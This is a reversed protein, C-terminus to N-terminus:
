AARWRVEVHLGGLASRSLSLTGGFARTLEDAIALGLGHGGGSEDLRAGRPLAAEAESESMGPGDDEIVLAAAGGSIRVRTRAYRAANEILPGAIEMILAAPAPAEEDEVANEFTLADGRETREIVKILDSVVRRVQAPTAEASAARTRALERDVAASAAAIARDLGDAADAAGAERARRSQAALAALPTKLSHALDAARRKALELDRERADAYTNIAEALPAAEAPYADAELRKSAGMGALALRVDELPALGLHVQLWAAASLAAWLVVLFIALDRGFAARAATVAAHDEALVVFLPELAGPLEIRREIVLLRDEFPGAADRPSWGDGTVNPGIELTADWLSRSRLVEAGSSVQWYFGSAPTNFRPDIPAVSASLAGDPAVVLGAILTQGHRELNTRVSREIHAEFVFSMVLWAVALAAFIAAAAGALLRVRLSRAMM